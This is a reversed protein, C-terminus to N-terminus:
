THEAVNQHIGNNAFRTLASITEDVHVETEAVGIAKALRLVTNVISRLEREAMLQQKPVSHQSEPNRENSPFHRGIRVNRFAFTVGTGTGMTQMPQGKGCNPTGV